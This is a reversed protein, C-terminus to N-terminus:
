LYMTLPPDKNYLPANEEIVIDAFKQDIVAPPYMNQMPVANENSEEGNQQNSQKSNQQSNEQSLMQQLNLRLFCNRICRRLSRVGAEPPLKSIIHRIVDDTLVYDSSKMYLEQRINPVLHQKAIEIKEFQSPADVTVFEIRNALVPDIKTVDNLSLIIFARSLDLEIGQFYRDQFATNQQPDLLHILVNAIERGSIKDAEM